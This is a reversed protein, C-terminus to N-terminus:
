ASLGNKALMITIINGDAAAAELAKGIITDGTTATIVKGSANVMLNADILIAAGAVAKTKGYTALEAAEGSVPKNQIVGFVDEGEVSCLAAKGSSVKACYYQKASLDAGAELSFKLQNEEYAM